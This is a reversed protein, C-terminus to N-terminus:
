PQPPPQDTRAGGAGAPRPRYGGPDREAAEPDGGDADDIAEDRAHNRDRDGAETDREKVRAASAAGGAGGGLPRAAAQAHEGDASAGAERERWRQERRRYEGEPGVPREDRQDRREGDGGQERRCLVRRRLGTPLGAVGPQGAAEPQEDEDRRQPGAGVKAELGEEGGREDVTEADAGSGAVGRERDQQHGARKARVQAAAEGVAVAVLQDERDREAERQGGHGQDLDARARDEREGGGREGADGHDRAVRRGDDEALAHQRAPLRERGAHREAERHAGAAEGDSQEAREGIRGTGVCCQPDGAAEGGDGNGSRQLDTATPQEGSPGARRGRTSAWWGFGAPVYRWQRRPM